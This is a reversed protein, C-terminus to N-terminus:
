IRERQSKAVVLGQPRLLFILIVAGFVFADRFARLDLPLFQQLSVTLASLVFGGLAAGALSGLGGMITAVFAIVVPRLGITPTITGTQAVLVIVAAAALLGSLAFATAIVKNAKVGLLRAMEFNEAAARMQIGLDTRKLFLALSGMLVAGVVIAIIDLKSMRLGAVEIQETLVSPLGVSKERPGMILMALNQLLFSLAFSTVLQTFPSAGRIPRFAVREFILAVAMVITATLLVNILFPQDRFVWLTYGGVMLLEGHAFNIFRMIGFVLAVGLALLAYLSGLSLIDIANQLLDKM